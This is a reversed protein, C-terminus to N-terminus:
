SLKNLLQTTIFGVGVFLCYYPWPLKHQIKITRKSRIKQESKIDSPSPRHRPSSPGLHGGGNAYIRIERSSLCSPFVRLCHVWYKSFLLIDVVHSRYFKAYNRTNASRRTSILNIAHRKRTSLRQISRITTKTNAFRADINHLNRMSHQNCKM